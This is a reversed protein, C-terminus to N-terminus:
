PAKRPPKTIRGSPQIADIARAPMGRKRFPDSRRLAYWATASVVQTATSTVDTAWGAREFLRILAAGPDIQHAIDPDVLKGDADLYVSGVHLPQHLDGLFHALLFLAEKKDKISFPFPPPIPKDSLVAIAAGIAAVLDHDNTGQFSRDFSNRQIAVDDFHYTNHCGREFGDPKYSCTDTTWNRKVYDVMRAREEKSNYPTCPVEYELHEPDVEYHFTKDDHRVVSKVCDPWPAAKQLNLEGLRRPDNEALIQRVQEKANPKLLKDAISGVVKHGQYSWASAAVPYLLALLCNLAFAIRLM